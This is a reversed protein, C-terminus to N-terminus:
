GSAAVEYPADPELVLDPKGLMWDDTWTRRTGEPRPADKPNGEPAGADAWEAITRLEEDSLRRVDQFDGCGPEALWPPMQRSATFQRIEPAWSRAEKSTLLSFPAVQGPRHCSQCRRAFIPEVDRHYTVKGSSATAPQPRPIVCGLAMTVPAAVTRGALVAEL